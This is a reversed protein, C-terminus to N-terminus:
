GTEVDDDEEDWWGASGQAPAIGVETLAGRIVEATQWLGTDYCVGEAQNEDAVREDGPDPPETKPAMQSVKQCAAILKEIQEKTLDPM